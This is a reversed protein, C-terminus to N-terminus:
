SPVILGAYVGLVALLVGFVLLAVNGTKELLAQLATTHPPKCLFMLTPFIFILASGGIAGTLTNALGLDSIFLSTACIIIIPLITIAQDLIFGEKICKIKKLSARMAPKLGQFVVPYTTVVNVGFLARAINAMVDNQAYSNLISGASSSGFTLFGSCLFLLYVLVPVVFGLGSVLRFKTDDRGVEDYFSPANLHAIYATESMGLLSLTGFQSVFQKLTGIFSPSTDFAPKASLSDYFRGGPLYSGDFYRLMVFILTYTVAAIGILSSPALFSLSKLSSLPYLVAVTFGLIWTRRDIAIPSRELLPGLIGGRALASFSDGIIISYCICGMIPYLIGVLMVVWASRKNVSQAWTKIFTTTSSIGCQRGISYFTYSSLGGLAALLVMAPLILARDGGIAAVGAPLSLIGSGLINKILNLIAKTVARPDSMGIVEVQVQSPSRM